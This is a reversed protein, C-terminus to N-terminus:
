SAWALPLKQAAALEIQPATRRNLTLWADALLLRAEGEEPNMGMPVELDARAQEIRKSDKSNGFGVPATGSARAEASSPSNRVAKGLADLAQKPGRADGSQIASKALLVYVPM